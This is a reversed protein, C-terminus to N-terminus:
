LLKAKMAITRLIETRKLELFYWSFGLFDSQPRGLKRMNEQWPLMSVERRRSGRPSRAQLASM